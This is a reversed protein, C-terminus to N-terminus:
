DLVIVKTVVITTLVTKRKIYIDNLTLTVGSVVVVKAVFATYDQLCCRRIVRAEFVARVSIVVLGLSAVFGAHQHKGESLSLM